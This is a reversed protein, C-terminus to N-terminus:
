LRWSTPIHSQSLHEIVPVLSRRLEFADPALLRMVLLDPALLSAGATEPLLERIRALMAEAEPAVFVVSAMAGAGNAIAPRSLLAAADDNLDMGDVYLPADNRTVAIRDRFHVNQLIENMASRGFIVPEVMLFRAGEAMSVRLQRRLACKDFLILEQPLWHMIGGARVTIKTDVQAIEGQQARYAREAAQTTLTLAAHEEVVFSFNFHDGGTLGGATNVLITDVEPRPSVPFVLKASGAHRLEALTSRGGKGRKVSLHASGIARPQM